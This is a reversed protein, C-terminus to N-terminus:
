AGVERGLVVAAAKRLSCPAKVRGSGDGDSRCLPCRGKVPEHQRYILEAGGSWRILGVLVPDASM